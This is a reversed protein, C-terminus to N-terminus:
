FRRRFSSHISVRLKRFLVCVGFYIDFSGTKLVSDIYNYVTTSMLLRLFWVVIFEGQIAQSTADDLETINHSSINQTVLDALKKFQDDLQLGSQLLFPHLTANFAVDELSDDPACILDVSRDM